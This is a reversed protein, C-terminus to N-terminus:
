RIKNLKIRWDALPPSALFERFKDDDIAQIEPSAFASLEGLTTLMNQLQGYRGLYESNASDESLQLSAFHYLREIKLDIQKEFELLEALREASAGVGGKWDVIKAGTQEVWRFDEEWKGVDAFLHQLDWKDSDPVDARTPTIADNPKENTMM